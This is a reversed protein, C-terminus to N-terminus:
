GLLFKSLKQFQLEIQKTQKLTIFITDDGAITGLINEESELDLLRAVLQAAGPATQVVILFENHSINLILQKLTDKPSINILEAPLRYVVGNKEIMKIAGIKNLIRSIKVQNVSIGQKELAARIEEQTGVTNNRLLNQISVIIEAQDDAQKSMLKHGITLAYRTNM